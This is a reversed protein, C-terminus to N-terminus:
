FVSLCSRESLFNLHEIKTICKGYSFILSIEHGAYFTLAIIFHAWILITFQYPQVCGFLRKHAFIGRRGRM